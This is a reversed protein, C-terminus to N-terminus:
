AGNEKEELIMKAGCGPCFEQAFDSRWTRYGCESCVWDFLKPDKQWTGLVKKEPDPEDGDGEYTDLWAVWKGDKVYYKGTDANKVHRFCDTVYVIMENDFCTSFNGYGYVTDCTIKDICNLIYPEPNQRCWNPKQLMEINM